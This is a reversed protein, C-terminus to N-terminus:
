EDMFSRFHLLKYLLKDISFIVNLKNGTKFNLVLVEKPFTFLVLFTKIVENTKCTNILTFVEEKLHILM